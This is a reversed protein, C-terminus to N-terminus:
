AKAAEAMFAQAIEAGTARWVGDHRCIYDLAADLAGIRHPMGTLYPHLAIAMVRGSETGERYLTDFQRCIMDQFEPATLHMREFAPKDNIDHSYPMAVLHRGGELSMVYPQDDNVWDCVYEIGNEALLDLTNWTEQLGSGLWGRPRAGTGRTVEAVAAAILRPEDEAPVANLRRTNTENHGMWEWGLTKGAAIIEPHHACVQSNLAVTGRVGHRALVDMLRFVGVRNGYDRSSWTPVDPATVGAGGAAPPVTDNLAFFEINPIVWLALRAGGPWTLRKRSIIPSYPFPGYASPKM